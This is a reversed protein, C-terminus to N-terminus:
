ALFRLLRANIDAANGIPITHHTAGPLMEVTVNPLLARANAAVRAPDHSRSKEAVLVLTPVDLARLRQPAPLAPMVIRSRPLDAALCTLELWDPDLAAGGTEWRLFARMRSARPGPLFIPVARLRYSLRMGDFCMSPDLLALRSVRGPFDLAYNLSLWGGYSHGGIRVTDLALGNFVADLWAMLDDRSRVPRTASPVGRGADNIQDVAFVRHTQALDAVNGFWVTSTAGGSHLLVLPSAYDPGCVNVHTTGFPTAVDVPEVPVPWKVLVARYAEDFTM